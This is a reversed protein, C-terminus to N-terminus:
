IFYKTTTTTESAIYIYIVKQTLNYYDFSVKFALWLKKYDMKKRKKKIFNISFYNEKLNFNIKITKYELWNYKEYMHYTLLRLVHMFCHNLGLLFLKKLAYIRSQRKKLKFFINKLFVLDGIKYFNRERCLQCNKLYKLSFYFLHLQTRNVTLFVYAM